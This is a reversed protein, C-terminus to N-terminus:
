GGKDRRKRCLSKSAFRLENLLLGWFLSLMAVGIACFAIITAICFWLVVRQFKNWGLSVTGDTNLATLGTQMASLLVGWFGILFIIPAFINAFYTAYQGIIGTTVM